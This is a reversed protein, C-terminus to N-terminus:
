DEFFCFLYLGYERTFHSLSFIFRTFSHTQEYSIITELMPIAYTLLLLLSASAFLAVFLPYTLASLIQKRLAQQEGTAPLENILRCSDTSKRDIELAACVIFSAKM